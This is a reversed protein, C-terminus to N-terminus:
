RLEARLTRLALEQAEATSVHGALVHIALGDLTFNFRRAVDVTNAPVPTGEAAAHELAAVLDGRWRENMERGVAGFEDHSASRLWGEVWLKWVPDHRDDPLYDAVYRRLREAPDAISRLAAARADALQVEAHRVAEILVADRSSFYYLVHNPRMGARAAIEALQVDAVPHDRVVALAATVITLRRADARPGSPTRTPLGRGIRRTSVPVRDQKRNSNLEFEQLAVKGRGSM